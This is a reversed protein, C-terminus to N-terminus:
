RERPKKPEGSPVDKSGNKKAEARGARAKQESTPIPDLRRQLEEFMADIPGYVKVLQAEIEKLEDETGDHEAIKKELRDIEAKNADRHVLAREKMEKLISNASKTQAEDLQFRSIFEEVYKTWADVETAIQDTPSEGAKAAEEAKAREAEARERAEEAARRERRVALPPDWFERENFEGQQWRGLQTRAFQMGAKFGLLDGEFKGLQDERLIGRMEEVGDAIQKEFLDFAKGARGSWEVVQEKTPAEMQLRMEIFDNMLPKFDKENERAFGGWRKQMKATLDSKQAEDLEYRDAVMEAWRAIMLDMMRGTPWLGGSDERSERAVPPASRDQAPYSGAFGCIVILNLILM